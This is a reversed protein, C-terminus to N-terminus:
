KKNRHLKPNIPTTLSEPHPISNGLFAQLAPLQSNPTAVLEPYDIELLQINPHQRLEALTQIIHTQQTQILHEKEARPKQGQRALMTWQSDVIEEVPRKMFIIRYRNRPPLAPLLASIVKIVKGEAQEILHPNKRLKKIEEWEYYGQPNDDDAPRKEDTMAVLGAADLMQMMLSTGSRPLGSVILYDGPAVAAEEKAKQAADERRRKREAHRDKARAAIGSRLSQLHKTEAARHEAKLRIANGECARAKETEGRQRYLQVLSNTAQPSDPNLKLSNILAQEAEPLQGLLILAQGLVNHARPDGYQLQIAELAAATAAQPDKDHLLAIRALTLRAQYSDPDLSLLTDASKRADSWQSLRACCQCLLELAQPHEPSKELLIKLHTLAAEHNGKKLEIQGQLIHASLNDGFSELCIALTEEAETALGLNLQTRALLQAYDTREPYANFCDELLPLAGDYKGSYLYARALSWKNERNTEAVAETPDDSVADIYGLAVFQELLAASDETSLSGRTQQQGEPNEWTPVTQVPHNESFLEKLVRGEMDVGVPQNLHHLITPAIDLLRAGYIPTNTSKIGPGKALLVGQNRHWVTIGAPVRPTYIPRLHDSHFGHDSVLIVTTEPGALQLLRQLMM